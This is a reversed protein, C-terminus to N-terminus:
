RRRSSSGALLSDAWGALVVLVAAVLVVSEALEVAPFEVPAVALYAVQEVLVARAVLEV